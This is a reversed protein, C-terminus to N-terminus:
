LRPRRYLVFLKDLKGTPSLLGGGALPSTTLVTWGNDEMSALRAAVEGLQIYETFWEHLPVPEPPATPQINGTGFGEGSEISHENKGTIKEDKPM